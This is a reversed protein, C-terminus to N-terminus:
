QGCWLTAQHAVKKKNGLRGQQMVLHLMKTGAESYGGLYLLFPLQIQFHVRGVREASEFYRRDFKGSFLSEWHAKQASKAHDVM